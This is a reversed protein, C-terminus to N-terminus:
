KRTNWAAIAKDKPMFGSEPEFTCGRGDETEINACYVIWDNGAGELVAEGGCFPCTKLEESM